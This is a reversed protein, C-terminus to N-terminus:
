VCDDKCANLIDKYLAREKFPETLIEDRVIIGKKLLIIHNINQLNNIRHSVIIITKGTRAQNELLEQYLNRESLIDLASSPEDLLLLSHNGYLLRAIAIKQWEGGSLQIGNKFLKGLQQQYKNPLFDIIDYIKSIRACNAIRPLDNFYRLDGISINEAITMEYKVFDQFIAGIQQFYYNNEINQINNGNLYIAGETPYYLKCILKIITTKGSGNLGMILVREGEKVQFCLDHVAWHNQNEYKYGVHSFVLGNVDVNDGSETNSWSKDDSEISFFAFFDSLYSARDNIWAISNFFSNIKNKLTLLIGSVYTLTGVTILGLLVDHILVYYVSYYVFLNITYLFINVVLRKKQIYLNEKQFRLKKCSFLNLLFSLSRFLKIEKYNQDTTLLDYYYDALRREPIWKRQLKYIYTYFRVESIFIVFSTIIFLVIAVPNYAIIVISLSAISFICETVVLLERILNGGDHSENKALYFKSKIEANEIQHLSLSNFQEIIRKSTQLEFNYNLKQNAYSSIRLLVNSCVIIIAETCLYSVIKNVDKGLILEDIILKGVYLSIIPSFILILRVFVNWILNNKDISWIYSIFQGINKWSQIKLFSDM